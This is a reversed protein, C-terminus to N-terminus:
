QWIGAYNGVLNAPLPGGAAFLRTGSQDYCHTYIAPVYKIQQFGDMEEEPFKIRFPIQFLLNYTFLLFLFLGVVYGKSAKLVVTRSANISSELYKGARVDYFMLMGLGTGVTLMNDQFSASRIGCGSYRSAIKKVAQSSSLILENLVVTLCCISMGTIDKSRSAFHVISMRRRVIRKTPMCYLRQGPLQAAKKLTESNSTCISVTDDFIYVFLLYKGYRRFRKQM